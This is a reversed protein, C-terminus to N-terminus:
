LGPLTPQAEDGEPPYTITTGEVHAFRILTHPRTSTASLIDQVEVGRVLLADGILSRHCRWPVAEACMIATPERGAIALLHDIGGAFEASQMYDAYGRFSANRWGGNLSDKTTHRLGGLEALRLYRIGRQPLSADLASDMYQPNHRSGAITRVDALTTVGHAVLMGVLEDIPRTSHGITFVTTM